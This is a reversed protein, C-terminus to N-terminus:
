KEDPMEGHKLAEFFDYIKKRLATDTYNWFKTLLEAGQEGVAKLTMSDQAQLTPYINVTTLFSGNSAYTHELELDLVGIIEEDTLLRKNM